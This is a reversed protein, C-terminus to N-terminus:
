TPIDAEELLTLFPVSRSLNLQNQYWARRHLGKLRPLVPDNVGLQVLRRYVLPLLRHTEADWIDDLVLDGRLSRWEEVAQEPELFAVRLLSRQLPDPWPPASQ